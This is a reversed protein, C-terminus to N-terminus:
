AYAYIKQQLIIKLKSIGRSYQVRATSANINLQGAIESFSMEKFLRLSIITRYAASLNDIGEKIDSVTLEYEGSDEDDEADSLFNGEDILSIFDKRKRVMDIAHNAAIRKLYRTMANSDDLLLDTNTFIKLLTDHMIEEAEEHNGLISYASQFVPRYFLDYFAIQSRKDNRRVGKIISNYNKMYRKRFRHRLSFPNTVNQFSFNKKFIKKNTQTYNFFKKSIQLFIFQISLIFFFIKLFMAM